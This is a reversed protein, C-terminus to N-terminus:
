IWESANPFRDYRDAAGSLKIAQPLCNNTTGAFIGMYNVTFCPLGASPRQSPPSDPEISIDPGYFYLFSAPSYFNHRAVFGLIKLIHKEIVHAFDFHRDSDKQHVTHLQLANDNPEIIKANQQAAIVMRLQDVFVGDGRDHGTLRNLKEAGAALIFFVFIILLAAYKM